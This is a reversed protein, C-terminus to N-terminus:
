VVQLQAGKRGASAGNWWDRAAVWKGGEKKVETLAVGEVSDSCRLVLQKSTPELAVTGPPSDALVAPLPIPRHSLRLQLQADALATWLPYQHGVGRQLRCVEAASTQSWNVRACGKDLKPALCAREEGQPQAREQHAELTRLVSVLLEGGARALIPELALFNAHPPVNPQQALIRGRDFKGRSLEQVTVGMSEGTVGDADGVIIGRQIPAAGRWRPLLSPHVNLANLPLFLSLLSTPILHGFSATLLVNAAPPPGNSEAVLFPHAQWGKLLSSPLAITNVGLEEALLRLPPRHVEKLRRGTRQDPPVVVTLSDVLDARASHLSSFVDCSFADAGFFLFRRRTTPPAPSTSLCRRKHPNPCPARSRTCLKISSRAALM